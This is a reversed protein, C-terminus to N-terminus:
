RENKHGNRFYQNREIERSRMMPLINIFPVIYRMFNYQIMLEYRDPNVEPLIGFHVVTGTEKDNMAFPNEYAIERYCGIPLKFNCYDNRLEHIRRYVNEYKMFGRDLSEYMQVCTKIYPILMHNEVFRTDIGKIIFSDNRNYYYMDFNDIQYYSSFRHKIVFKFGDIELVSAKVDYVFVADRNRSIVKDNPINNVELFKDVTEKILQNQRKMDEPLYKGIYISSWRKDRSKWYKYTKDDIVGLNKYAQLGARQIDYEIIPKNILFRIQKNRYFQSNAGM